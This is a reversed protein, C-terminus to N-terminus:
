QGFVATLIHLKARLCHSAALVAAGEGDGEKILQELLRHDDIVIPLREPPYGHTAWIAPLLRWHREEIDTAERNGSARSIVSHFEMNASLLAPINESAAYREFQLRVRQLEGLDEESRREAARRAQLSELQIRIDFLNTVFSADLTRVRGGKNPEMDILGDGSLLKLAERIPMHSTGYRQALEDIKLRQGFTFVGALIDRRIRSEV